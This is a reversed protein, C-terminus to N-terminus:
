PKTADLESVGAERLAANKFARELIKAVSYGAEANLQAKIDYVEQLIPDIRRRGSPKLGDDDSHPIPISENPNL